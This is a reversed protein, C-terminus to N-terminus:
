NPPREMLNGLSYMLDNDFAETLTSNTSSARITWRDAAANDTFIDSRKAANSRASIFYANAAPTDSYRGVLFMTLPNPIDQGATSELGVSGISHVVDYGTNQIFSNGNLTWIESTATSPFQTDSTRNVYDAPSFDVVLTGDIGDYVRASYISGTIPSAGAQYVGVETPSTGDFIGARALAVDASGLQTWSVATDDDTTDTSTYFNVVDGSDSWTVRVWGTDGASFPVAATSSSGVGAIGDASLNLKITGAAEIWFIYSRQNGANTWKGIFTQNGAPTWDEMSVKVRIDIDGEVSSAASDPTSVYDSATGYLLVADSISKKLNAGTGVVVDLDYSAGGLASNTWEAVAGGSEVIGDANLNVLADAIISEATVGGLFLATAGILM